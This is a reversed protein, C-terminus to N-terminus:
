SKQRARRNALKAANIVAMVEAVTHFSGFVVIRDNEGARKRAAAYAGRPSDFRAVEAAADAGSIAEALMSASAGRAVSLDTVFWASIREKLARCVGAVDKDKLMGLVAYTHEYFGMEGLNDALIAAAQPNHAVDLIVAPRGPLVQFRGPLEVQALGNRIDQMAVPLKARLSDLAALATCANVIQHAGRLSPYALGGRRGGPGWFVWQNREAQYGFDRGILQLAADVKNARELVSGPPDPDAVIAPKGRRFIGAKEAGIAERTNGLYDTHDIAVGTLIACDCDFVNVADLRGGLGVELIVADLSREAFIRWAALTGFEFYTLTTHSRAAEVSEFAACLESDRAFEGDIRVRENYRLLHPSTYLGVRYGAALLIAELMACTSGKGNTGAVTFITARSSVHMAEQVSAVRDLGLQIAKPHVREIYELWEALSRTPM